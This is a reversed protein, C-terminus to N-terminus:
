KDDVIDRELTNSYVDMFEEDDMEPAFEQFCKRIQWQTMGEAEDPYNEKERVEEPLFDIFLTYLRMINDLECSYRTALHAFTPKPVDEDEGPSLDLEETSLWEVFEDFEIQGGGDLDIEVFAREFEADTLDPLLDTMLTQMRDKTLGYPDDPYNDEEGEPILQCFQRHLWEIRAMTLGFM